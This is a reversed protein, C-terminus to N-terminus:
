NLLTTETDDVWGTSVSDNVALRTFLPGHHSTNRTWVIAWVSFKETSVKTGTSSYNGLTSSDWQGSLSIGTAVLTWGDGNGTPKTDVQSVTIDNRGYLSVTCGRNGNFTLHYNLVQYEQLTKQRWVLYHSSNAFNVGGYQTYPKGTGAYNWMLNSSSTFGSGYVEFYHNM